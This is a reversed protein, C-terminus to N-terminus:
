VDIVSWNELHIAVLIFNEAYYLYVHKCVHVSNVSNNCEVTYYRKLLKKSLMFVTM